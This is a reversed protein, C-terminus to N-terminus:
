KVVQAASWTACGLSAIVLTVALPNGITAGFMIAVGVASDVVAVTTCAGAMFDNWFGGGTIAHMEFLSIEKM